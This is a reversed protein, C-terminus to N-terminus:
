TVLKLVLVVFHQTFVTIIHQLLKSLPVLQQCGVDDRLPEHVSLLRTLLHDISQLQVRVEVTHTLGLDEEAGSHEGMELFLSVVLDGVEDDVELCEAAAVKRPAVVLLAQLLQVGDPDNLAVARRVELEPVPLPPSQVSLYVTTTRKRTAFSVFYKRVM